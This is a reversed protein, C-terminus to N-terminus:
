ASINKLHNNCISILKINEKRKNTKNCLQIVENYFNNFDTEKYKGYFLSFDDGDNNKLSIVPRILFNVIDKTESDLLTANIIDFLIMNRVYLTIDLKEDLITNAKENLDDKIKFKKSLCCKFFLSKIKDFLTYKYKVKEEKIENEEYNTEKDKVSSALTSHINNKENLHNEGYLDNNKIKDNIKINNKSNINYVKKEYSNAIREYNIEEITEEDQELINGNFHKVNKSTTQKCPYLIKEKQFNEITSKVNKNEKKEGLKFDNIVSDTVSILERIKEKKDHIKLKYDFDQFFFIKRALNQQAWFTNLFEFIIMLIEYITILLASADAYFENIKQYRRRIDTRKTDARLYLKVFNLYDTTGYKREIGQFLSYEEFRSFLTKKSKENEEEENFVYFLNDDDYLFQNMFYINRRISLTPNIQIFSAEVYSKIPNKFDEIDVTYDSYYIQFKCDCEMLFNNIKKLLEKSKNKANVEFQFYSFIDSTWIGEITISPDDLCEYNYIQSAEFTENFENYFDSKTCPHSTLNFIDRLYINNELHWHIYKYDIRFLQDATTNDKAKWCNLGFALATKSEAFSIRDATPTSLTYYVSTFNKMNYFPIFYYIGLALSMVSFIILVLGGISSTFKEESKYKFSYPVGFIDIKHLFKRIIDM